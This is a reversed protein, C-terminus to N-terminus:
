TTSTPLSMALGGLGYVYRFINYFFYFVHVTIVNASLNEGGEGSMDKYCNQNIVM